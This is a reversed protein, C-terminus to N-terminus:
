DAILERIKEGVDKSIVISEGVLIAHVGADALREVDRRSEIGSESVIIKGRPIEKVVRLTTNMDIKFTMLDRNNIGIIEAGAKLATELEREDHIEVLSSMGLESSLLIFDSLASLELVSTILLVADAGIYRSEYIHYEEFLFDKRLVPIKTCGRAINIYEPNGSFFRKETLVSIASAGAEEYRRALDDVKLDEILLGKSPSRKKIEAILQIPRDDSRSSISAYFNRPLEVDRIRAKIEKLPLRIRDEALEARKNEVIKALFGEM